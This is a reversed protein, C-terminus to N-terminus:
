ETVREGRKRRRLGRKQVMELRAQLRRWKRALQAEHVSAYKACDEHDLEALERFETNREPDEAVRRPIEIMELCCMCEYAQLERRHYLIAISESVAPRLVSEATAM